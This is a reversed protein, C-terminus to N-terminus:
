ADSGQGDVNRRMYVDGFYEDQWLAVVGEQALFLLPIYIEITGKGLSACLARVTETGGDPALTDYCGLVVEAAGTYDEDHAVAVVDSARIPIEEGQQARRRHRRREEKEATKLETILEYLTVPRRRVKKRGIRRQIERELREIPEAEDALGFDEEDDVSVELDEEEDQGESLDETLYESKMRLLTAAFFLTRGSIRLDLERCRELETLFRDTVDVIDINWPDIEGREALQVLIEVPEEHM